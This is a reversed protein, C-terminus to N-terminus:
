DPWPSISRSCASTLSRLASRRIWRTKSRRASTVCRKAKSSLCTTVSAASPTESERLRTLTAVKHVFSCPSAPPNMSGDACSRTSLKIVLEELEDRM